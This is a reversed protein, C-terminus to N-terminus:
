VRCLSYWRNIASLEHRTTIFEDNKDIFYQLYYKNLTAKLEQWVDAKENDLFIEEETEINSISWGSEREFNVYIDKFIPFNNGVWATWGPQGLLYKYGDSPDFEPEHYLQFTLGQFLSPGESIKFSFDTYNNLILNKLDKNM